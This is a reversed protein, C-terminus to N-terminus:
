KKEGIVIVSLGIKHFFIMDFLKAFPIIANYFRFQGAPIIKNKLLKGSIFWGWIGMANFYFTRKASIDNVKFLDSMQKNGYRRFHYLEKDFNNYLWQYAPVLIILNGGKSLLKKCNAIALQDDEIHEVVNLAFVTEFQGLHKAYKTDFDKDVLDINEVGLVNSKDSFKAKLEECYNDRIDTLFIKFGDEIFFASINGVGSGVEMVRGKCYPKISNYMWRNFNTAAAIVELTERGEQDIDKYDFKKASETM